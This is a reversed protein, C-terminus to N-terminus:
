LNKLKEQLLEEKTLIGPEREYQNVLAELKTVSAQEAPTMRDKSLNMSQLIRWGTLYGEQRDEGKNREWVLKMWEYLAPASVRVASQHGGFVRAYANIAEPKKNREAFSVAYFLGVEASYKRFKHESKNLYKGSLTELQAWNESFENIKIAEYLAKERSDDKQDKNNYVSLLSTLAEAREEQNVSVGLLEARGMTAPLWFASVQGREQIITYFSIAEQPTKSSRHLFKATTYLAQSPLEQANLGRLNKVYREIDAQYKDIDGAKAAEQHINILSIEKWAKRATTTVAFKLVGIKNKAEDLGQDDFLLQAYFPLTKELSVHAPAAEIGKHLQDLTLNSAQAAILFERAEGLLFSHYSNGYDVGDIYANYWALAEKGEESDPKPNIVTFLRILAQAIMENDKAATASSAIERTLEMAGALNKAQFLNDVKVILAKNLQESLPLEETFKTITANSAELDGSKKQLTALDVYAKDYDTGIDKTYDNIFKEYAAIGEPLQNNLYYCRCVYYASQIAKKNDPFKKALEAFLVRAGDYNLLAYNSVGTLFLSDIYANPDNAIESKKRRFYDAVEKYNKSKYFNNITLLHISGAGQEGGLEQAKNAYYKEKDREDLQSYLDLLSFYSLKVFSDEIDAGDEALKEYYNIALSTQGLARLAKIKEIELGYDLSSKDLHRKAVEKELSQFYSRSYSIPGDKISSRNKLSEIKAAAEDNMDQMSPIQSLYYYIQESNGAERAFKLQESFSKLSELSYQSLFEPHKKFLEVLQAHIEPDDSKGFLGKWIPRLGARNYNNPDKLLKKFDEFVIPIDGNEIRLVSIDVKLKNLDVKAENKNAKDYNAIFAEYYGLAEKNKKQVRSLNALRYNSYNVYSNKRSNETKETNAYRVMCEKLSAEADAYKKLQMECLAKNYYFEGFKPGFKYKAGAGYDDIIQNIVGLGKNFDKAKMAGNLEKLLDNLDAANLSALPLSILM